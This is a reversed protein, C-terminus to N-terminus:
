KLFSYIFDFFKDYEKGLIANKMCVFNFARTINMNEVKLHVMEGAVLEKHAVTKYMFSIGLNCKVMEKIVELNGIEMTGMFNKIDDNLDQLANELIARTGSGKERLILREGHLDKLSVEKKNALPHDKSVVLIFDERKLLKANFDEKNFYGEVFAFDIEGHCLRKLLMDTNEVVMDLHDKPNLKVYERIIEPMLYGAISLTAGFSLNKAGEEIEGLVKEIQKSASYIQHCYDLFAEGAETLQFRKTEQNILKVHYYNELYQIHQTVAPQTICLKGGAKTYNKDNCLAIFTLVRQDIM